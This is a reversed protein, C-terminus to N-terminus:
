LPKASSDAKVPGAEAAPTKEDARPKLPKGSADVEVWDPHRAVTRDATAPTRRYLSGPVEPNHFWRDM